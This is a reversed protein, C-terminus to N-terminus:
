VDHERQDTEAPSQRQDLQPPKGRYRMGRAALKAAQVYILGTVKQSQLAHRWAARRLSGATLARARGTMATKLMVGGDPAIWDVWAGFRGPGTDFRFIYSGERPLFPSVHFLKDGSLRDSPTIVRGDAHRCLYLHQEGFTNSVEALVARLGAADRALWFSVPNFSHGTSRPLTLLTVQADALGVPALQARIFGDLSSSDRAGYDSRRIKWLGRADPRLPLQGAELAAVPLATYTAHYRFTRALDGSRAHWISADILAGHWLDTSM